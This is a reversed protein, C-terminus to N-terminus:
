DKRRAEEAKLDFIESLGSCFHASDTEGVTLIEAGGKMNYPFDMKAWSLTLTM